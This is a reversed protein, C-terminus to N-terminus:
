VKKAVISGFNGTIANYGCSTCRVKVGTNRWSCVPCDWGEPDLQAKEYEKIQVDSAFANERDHEYMADRLWRKVINSDSVARRGLVSDKLTKQFIFPIKLAARDKLNLMVYLYFETMYVRDSGEFDYEEEASVTQNKQIVEVDFIDRYHCLQPMTANNPVFRILQRVADVEVIGTLTECTKTAEFDNFPVLVRGLNLDVKVGDKAFADERSIGCSMCISKIGRNVYSCRPCIWSSTDRKALEEKRKTDEAEYATDLPAEKMAGRVWRKIVYSDEIARKGLVSDKLTRQFIFPIRVNGREPDAMLVYLYFETFYPADNKEGPDTKKEAGEDEGDANAYKSDHFITDAELIDQYHMYVPVMGNSPVFRMMQHVADMEFMGTLSEYSMTSKFVDYGALRKKEEM